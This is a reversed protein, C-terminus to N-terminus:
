GAPPVPAPRADKALGTVPGVPPNLRHNPTSAGLRRGAVWVILRDRQKSREIQPGAHSSIIELVEVGDWKPQVQYTAVSRGNMVEVVTYSTDGPLQIVVLFLPRSAPNQEGGLGLVRRECLRLGYGEAVAVAQGDRSLALESPPGLEEAHFAGQALKASITSAENAGPVWVLLNEWRADPVYIQVDVPRYRQEYMVYACGSFGWSLVVFAILWNERAMTTKWLCRVDATLQPVVQRPDHAEQVVRSM